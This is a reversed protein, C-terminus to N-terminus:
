MRPLTEDVAEDGPGTPSCAWLEMHVASSSLLSAQLRPLNVEDPSNILLVKLFCFFAKKPRNENWHFQMSCVIKGSTIM